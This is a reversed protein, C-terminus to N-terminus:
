WTICETEITEPFTLTDFITPKATCDRLRLSLHQLNPLEAAFDHSMVSTADYGTISLYTLDALHRFIEPPLDLGTARSASDGNKELGLATLNRMNAFDDAQLRREGEEISLRDIRNLERVSIVRCLQVGIRELLTEQMLISRDCIDDLGQQTSVM